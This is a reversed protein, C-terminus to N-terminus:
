VPTQHRLAQLPRLLPLLLPFLRPPLLGVHSVVLLFVGSCLVLVWFTAAVLFHPRSALTKNPSKGRNPSTSAPRPRYSASSTRSESQTGFGTSQPKQGRCSAGHTEEQRSSICIGGCTQSFRSKRNNKPSDSQTKNNFLSRYEALHGGGRCMTCCYVRVVYQHLEPALSVCCKGKAADAPLITSPTVTSRLTACSFHFYLTSLPKLLM